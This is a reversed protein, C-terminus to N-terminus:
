RNRLSRSERQGGLTEANGQEYDMNGFAETDQFIGEIQGPENRKGQTWKEAPSQLGAPHQGTLKAQEALGWGM